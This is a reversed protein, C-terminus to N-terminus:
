LAVTESFFYYLSVAHIIQLFFINWFQFHFKLGTDIVGLILLSRLQALICNQDLHPFELKLQHRTIALVLEFHPFNSKWRLNSISPWPWDVWFVIRIKILANQVERKFRTIRAQVPSLDYCPRLLQNNVGVGVSVLLSLVQLAFCFQGQMFVNSYHNRNCLGLYRQIGNANSASQPIWHSYIAFNFQPAQELAM